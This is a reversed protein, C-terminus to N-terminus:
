VAVEAPAEEAVEEEEKDEANVKPDVSDKAATEAPMTEETATAGGFLTAVSMVTLNLAFFLSAWSSFYLTGPATGPGAGFTTYAAGICWAAFLLVSGVQEFIKVHLWTMGFGMVASIAGLVFGLVTRSCTDSDDTSECNDQWYRSASMMAVFGATGFGVWSFLSNDEQRKSFTQYHSTALAMAMIFAGWSSFFVNGNGITGKTDSVAFMNDANLVAPLGACWM